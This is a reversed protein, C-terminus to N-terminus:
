LKKSFLAYGGQSALFTAAGGVLVEVYTGVQDVPLEEGAVLTAVIVGALGLGANIVRVALKRADLEEQSYLQAKSPKVMKTIINAILASIVIAIEM